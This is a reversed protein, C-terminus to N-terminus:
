PYHPVLPPTPPDCQESVGYVCPALWRLMMAGQHELRQSHRLPHCSHLPSLVHHAILAMAAGRRSGAKCAKRYALRAPCRPWQYAPLRPTCERSCSPPKTEIHFPHGTCACGRNIPM